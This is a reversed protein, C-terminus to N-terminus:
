YIIQIWNIMWKYIQNFISYRTHFSLTSLIFCMKVLTMLLKFSATALTKMLIFLRFMMGIVVALFFLIVYTIITSFVIIIILLKLDWIIDIALLKTEIVQHHQCHLCAFIFLLDILTAGGIVSVAHVIIIIVIRSRSRPM